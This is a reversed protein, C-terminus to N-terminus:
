QEKIPNLYIGADSSKTDKFKGKSGGATKTPSANGSRMGDPPAVDLVTTMGGENSLNFTVSKILMDIRDSFLFSDDVTVLRNIKWLNGNGDRWGQVTYQVTRFDSQALQCEGNAQTQTKSDTCQSDNKIAKYRPRSFNLTASGNACNISKGGKSGKGSSQGIVEWESFLHSGDFRANGSKIEKGLSITGSVESAKGTVVLNGEEDDCLWLDDSNIIDKLNSLVTKNPDVDYSRKDTLVSSDEIVLGAGYPAILDAVIQRSTQNRFCLATNQSPRVINKGTKIRGITQGAKMPSCQVIDITRSQVAITANFDTATYSFPTATIYGTLMLEDAVYVRVSQGVTFKQLFMQGTPLTGTLEVTANRATTNLESSISISTFFEYKEGDIELTVTDKRRM